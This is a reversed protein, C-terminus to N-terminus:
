NGCDPSRPALESSGTLNCEDFIKQLDDIVQRLKETNCMITLYTGFIIVVGPVDLGAYLSNKIDGSQLHRVMYIAAGLEM